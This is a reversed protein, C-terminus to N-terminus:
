RELPSKIKKYFVIVNIPTEILWNDALLFDKEYKKYDKPTKLDSESPIKFEQASLNISL